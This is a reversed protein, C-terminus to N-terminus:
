IPTVTLRFFCIWELRVSHLFLQTPNCDCDFHWNDSDAQKVVNRICTSFSRIYIPIVRTIKLSIPIQFVLFADLQVRKEYFFAHACEVSKLISTIKKTQKEIKIVVKPTRIQYTDTPILFSWYVRLLNRINNLNNLHICVHDNKFGISILREIYSFFM